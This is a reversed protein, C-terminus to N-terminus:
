SHGALAYPLKDARNSLQLRLYKNVHRVATSEIEYLVYLSSRSLPTARMALAVFSMREMCATTKRLQRSKVARVAM